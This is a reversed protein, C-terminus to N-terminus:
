ETENWNYKKHKYDKKWKQQKRKTVEKTWKEIMVLFKTVKKRWKYGIENLKTRITNTINTVEKQKKGRKTYKETLIYVNEENSVEKTGIEKLKM